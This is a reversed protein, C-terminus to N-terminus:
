VVGDSFDLYTGNYEVLNRQQSNYEVINWWGFVGNCKIKISNHAM